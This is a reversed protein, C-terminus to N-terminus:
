EVITIHRQSAAPQPRLISAPTSSKLAETAHEKIASPSPMEAVAHPVFSEITAPARRPNHRAGSVAHNRMHMRKKAMAVSDRHMFLEPSVGGSQLIRTRALTVSDRHGRFKLDAEELNSLKRPAAAQKMRRGTLTGSTAEPDPVALTVTFEPMAAMKDPSESGDSPLDIDSDDHSDNRSQRSSTSQSALRSHNMSTRESNPPALIVADERDDVVMCDGQKSRSDDDPFVVLEPKFIELQSGNGWTWETLKSNVRELGRAATSGISNLAQSASSNRRNRNDSEIPVDDWIVEFCGNKSEVIQMTPTAPNIGGEDMTDDSSWSPTIAVVHVDTRTVAPDAVKSKIASNPCFPPRKTEQIKAGNKAKKLPTVPHIQELASERGPESSWPTLPPLSKLKKAVADEFDVTKVRRLKKNDVPSGPDTVTRSPPTATASKSKYKMSSKLPLNQENKPRKKSAQPISASDSQSRVPFWKFGPKPSRPDIWRFPENATRAQLVRWPRLPSQGNHQTQNILQQQLTASDITPDHYRSRSELRSNSSSRRHPHRTPQQSIIRQHPTTKGLQSDGVVAVQSSQVADRSSDCHRFKGVLTLDSTSKKLSRKPIAVSLHLNPYEIARKKDEDDGETTTQPKPILPDTDDNLPLPTAFVETEVADTLHLSKNDIEVAGDTTMSEITSLVPDYIMESGPTSSISINDDHARFM